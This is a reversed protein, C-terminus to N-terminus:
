KSSYYGEVRKIKMLEREHGARRDCKRRGVAHEMTKKRLEATARINAHKLLTSERPLWKWCSENLLCVAVLYNVSTIGLENAAKNIYATSALYDESIRPIMMSGHELQTFGSTAENHEFTNVFLLGVVLM